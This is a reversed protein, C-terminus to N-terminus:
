VKVGQGKAAATNKSTSGTLKLFNLYSARAKPVGIKNTIADWEKAVDNLADEVDKGAYVATMARDLANAYDGAGTMILEVVGYNAADNLARLYEKAAPWRSQYSKSKYHSIRYPDRLSYPLQVRQGSISPSTNWQTFLYAADINKSDPSVGRIIANIWGNKGPVTTYGVKGVIKSKPLFSFAKDRQAYNESIRGTPPWTYIMATKGQLWTTWMTLFDSKDSGPPSAALEALIVKMARIGAPGNIETKMTTPNFFRGGFSRFTQYFYFYNGPNGLARTMGQGYVAPALQDTIFQSVEVMEDWTRPVRLSKNYKARYAAKLKGNAFIDKRYYLMWVDGDDFFGWTKGKYTALSRYAPHIDKLSAQAGYKKIFDDIPVMVGRDAYDPIWGGAAEIVDIAGSKAVHEAIQKTYVPGFPSEIVKLEIGTLKKWLPAGFLKDDAAQPGTERITTLTVGSFQKAAAVARAAVPDAAAVASSAFAEAAGAFLPTALAGAAALRGSKRLLEARGFRDDFMGPGHEGFAMTIDKEDSVRGGGKM